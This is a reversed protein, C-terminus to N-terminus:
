RKWPWEEFHTIQSKLELLLEEIDLVEYRSNYSPFSLFVIVQIHVM